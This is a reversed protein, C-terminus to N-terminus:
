PSINAYWKVSQARAQTQLKANLQPTFSYLHCYCHMRSMIAALKGAKLLPTVGPQNAFLSGYLLMLCANM